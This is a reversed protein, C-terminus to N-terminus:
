GNNLITNTSNFTIIPSQYGAPALIIAYGNVPYGYLQEYYKAGYSFPNSECSDPSVKKHSNIYNFLLLIIGIVILALAIYEILKNRQQNM